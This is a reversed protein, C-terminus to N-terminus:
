TGISPASVRRNAMDEAVTKPEPAKAGNAAPADPATAAAPPQTPSDAQGEAEISCLLTTALLNNILRM